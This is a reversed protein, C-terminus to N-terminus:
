DTRDGELSGLLHRWRADEVGGTSRHGFIQMLLSGDFGYWELSHVPGRHTPRRVVWVEALGARRLDLSFRPNRIRWWDDAERFSGVYGHHIQVAGVNAVHVEVSLAEDRIYELLTCGSEVGVSFARGPGALRLANLRTMGFHALLDSFDGPEGMADWRIRLDVIDVLPIRRAPSQVVPACSLFEPTLRPGRFRTVLAAFAGQSSESTLEVGHVQSGDADFFYVGREAMPNDRAVVALAHHWHGLMLRLDMGSGVLWGMDERVHAHGLSGVSQHIVHANRTVARVTGLSELAPLLEDWNPRLRVLGDGLERMLLRADSLGTRSALDHRTRREARAAPEPDAQTRAMPAPEASSSSLVRM